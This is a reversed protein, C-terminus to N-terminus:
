VMFGWRILYMSIALFVKQKINQGEILCMITWAVLIGLLYPYTIEQPVLYFVLMAASYSLGVCCTKGKMFPKVFRYVPWGEIIINIIAITKNAIAWYTEINEM